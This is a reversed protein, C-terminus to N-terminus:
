AFGHLCGICLGHLEKAVALQIKIDAQEWNFDRLTENFIVM